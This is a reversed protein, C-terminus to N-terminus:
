RCIIINNNEEENMSFINSSVIIGILLGFIVIKKM